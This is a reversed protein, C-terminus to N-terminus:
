GSGIIKRHRKKSAYEITGVAELSGITWSGRGRKGGRNKRKSGNLCHQYADTREKETELKNKNEVPTIKQRTSSRNPGLGGGIKEWGCNTKKKWRCRKTVLSDSWPNKRKESPGGRGRSTPKDVDRLENTPTLLDQLKRDRGLVRRAAAGRRSFWIGKRERGGPM